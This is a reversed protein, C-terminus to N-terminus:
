RLRYRVGLNILRDTGDAREGPSLTDNGSSNKVLGTLTLDLSNGLEYAFTSSITNTSVDDDDVASHNYNLNWNNIWDIRDDVEYTLTMDNNLAYANSDDFTTTIETENSFQKSNSLPVHYEAGLLVGPNNKLGSFDTGVYSLGARVKWGYRRVSINEDILVDRVGLIGAASLSSGLAKEIDGVWHQQYFKAKGGHKSKYESERSIINAISRYVAKSPASSLAGRGRLEEVLRIAKAMPTVNTVRGYGLGVSLRTDLDDFSDDGKIGVSGFWFGRNSGPTFYNDATISTNFAYNNTSNAGAAGSRGINGLGSFDLDLDRSPSSLVRQADVRLRASYAAQSDERDKGVNMDFNLYADEFSSTAEDYDYLSINSDVPNVNNFNVLPAANVSSVSALGFMVALAIKNKTKIEM